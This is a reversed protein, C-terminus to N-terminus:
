LGFIRNPILRMNSGSRVSRLVPKMVGNNEDLDYSGASYLYVAVPQSRDHLVIFEKMSRDQYLVAFHDGDSDAWHNTIVIRQGDDREQYLALKCNETILFFNGKLLRYDIPDYEVLFEEVAYDADVTHAGSLIERHHRCSNFSLLLAPIILLLKNITNKNIPPKM